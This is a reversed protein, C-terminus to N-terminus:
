QEVLKADVLQEVFASVAQAATESSIDYEDILASALEQETCDVNMREWLFAGTSNLRIIGKFDLTREGVPVVVYEDCVSHLIFGQKLKM